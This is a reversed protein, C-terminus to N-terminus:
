YSCWFVGTTNRHHKGPRTKYIRTRTPKTKTELINATVVANVRIGHFVATADTQAVAFATFHDILREIFFFAQTLTARLPRSHSLSSFQATYGPDPELDRSELGKEARLGLVRVNPQSSGRFRTHTHFYIQLPSGTGAPVSVLVGM